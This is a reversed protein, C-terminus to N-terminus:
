TRKGKSRVCCDCDHPVSPLRLVDDGGVAVGIILVHGVLLIGGSRYVFLEVAKFLGHFRLCIGQGRGVVFNKVALM